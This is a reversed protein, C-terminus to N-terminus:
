DQLFGGAQHEWLKAYMGGNKTLEDHSGDETIKGNEFVLIRDM